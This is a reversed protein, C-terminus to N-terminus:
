AQELIPNAPVAGSAGSAPVPALELQGPAPLPAHGAM